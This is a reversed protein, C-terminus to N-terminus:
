SKPIGIWRPVKNLYEKYSDGYKEKCYREEVGAIINGLIFFIVAVLLM